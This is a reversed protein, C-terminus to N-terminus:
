GRYVDPALGVTDTQFAFIKGANPDAELDADSYGEASTTIFLTSLESGGFCCSSVQRAAVDIRQLLKGAPSYRHVGNGGWLAIWFNGERDRCMGDPAGESAPIDVVVQEARLGSPAVRFRRVSRLPTDIFFLTEGTSDWALGNSITVDALVESAVGSELRYLSAARPTKSYAMSGAWFRGLPDCKGDNMRRRLGDAPLVDAVPTLAGDESLRHFGEGAAIMWGSTERPVIAGVAMGLNWINQMGSDDGEPRIEKVLGRYQDVWILSRREVNWLPGEAHESVEDTLIEAEYRSM